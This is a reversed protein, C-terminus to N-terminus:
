LNILGKDRLTHLYIDIELDGMGYIKETAWFANYIQLRTKRGGNYIDLLKQEVYNLGAENVTLRKLQAQLAPKLNILAGWFDTTTLYQSLKEADRSVYIEWAQAALIFDMGNLQVRINDYLYELEDGTLEGMGMFNEKGPYDAPSILYIAPASLNAQQKLYTMIGLLNAQCHLDFEFWLNIEDYQETLMPLQNLMKEQYGEPSEGFRQCIWDLRAKWFSGSSVNNQLPGESFVERWVLTDGDLGTDEFSKLTADGNLIHLINM